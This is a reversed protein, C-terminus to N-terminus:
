GCGFLAAFCFEVDKYPENGFTLSPLVEKCYYLEAFSDTRRDISALFSVLSPTEVEKFTISVFFESSGLTVFVM